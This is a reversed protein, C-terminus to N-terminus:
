CTLVLVCVVYSFTYLFTIIYSNDIVSEMIFDLIDRPRKELMEMRERLTEREEEFAKAKEEQMAVEENRLKM